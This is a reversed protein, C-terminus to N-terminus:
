TGGNQTPGLSYLLPAAPLANLPINPTGGPLTRQPVYASLIYFLTSLARKRLTM